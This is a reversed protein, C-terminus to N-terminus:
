CWVLESSLGYIHLVVTPPVGTFNMSFCGDM